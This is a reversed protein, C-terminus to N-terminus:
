PLTILKLQFVSSFPRSVYIASHISQEVGTCEISLKAEQGLAAKIKEGVEKAEVGKPVLVTRARPVLEKAMRLRNEDIDTIAIPAAGAAHAALLSVMGIPGAGCIVLPDGM